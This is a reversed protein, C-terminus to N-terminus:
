CQNLLKRESLGVILHGMLIHSEQIRATNTSPVKLEYDVVKKALGNAGTFAVSTIGLSAATECCKIINNSKGSTSIVILLDNPKGLAKIQRSFIYDFGFDNGIATLASTDTALSLAPLCDRVVEFRSVFEAALHQSDAASGGNGAFIVKGDALFTEKVLVSVKDLLALFETDHLIKEKCAISESIADILYNM